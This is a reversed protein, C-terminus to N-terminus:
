IECYGVFGPVVDEVAKDFYIFIPKYADGFHTSYGSQSSLVISRTVLVVVNGFHLAVVIGFCYTRENQSSEFYFHQLFFLGIRDYLTKISIFLNM